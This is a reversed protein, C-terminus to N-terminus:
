QRYPILLKRLVLACKEHWQTTVWVGARCVVAGCVGARCVGAGGVGAGCVAAGRVGAGCVGAGCM